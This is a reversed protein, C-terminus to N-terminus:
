EDDFESDDLVEFTNVSESFDGVDDTGRIIQGDFFKALRQAAIAVEDTEWDSPPTKAPPPPSTQV